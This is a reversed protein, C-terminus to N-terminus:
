GAINDADPTVPFYATPSPSHAPRVVGPNSFIEVAWNNSSAIAQLEDDPNVAVANGVVELMPLDTISDSYAWSKKLEVGLSAAFEQMARAKNAGYSFFSLTGTYRGASDVEPRSAIVWDAGLHRAVPLVIDAPSSSVVVTLHTRASHEELLKQASPYILPDIVRNLNEEVLEQVRQQEWGRAVELGLRALQMSEEPGSRRMFKLHMLALKAIQRRTMVGGRRLADAFAVSSTGSLLTKDLDFFAAIM